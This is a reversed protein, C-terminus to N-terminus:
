QSMRFVRTSTTASFSGQHSRPTIHDTSSSNNIQLWSLLLENM